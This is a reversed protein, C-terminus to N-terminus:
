PAATLEFDATAFPADAQQELLWADIRYRGAGVPHGGPGNQAWLAEYERVEGPELELSSLVQICVTSSTWVADDSDAEAVFLNFQCGTTFRYVLREDGTNAITLTIHVPVGLPLAGETGVASRASELPRLEISGELGGPPEIVASGGGDCGPLGVLAAILALAPLAVTGSRCGM